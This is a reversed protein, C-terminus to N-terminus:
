GGRESRHHIISPRDSSRETPHILNYTKLKRIISAM